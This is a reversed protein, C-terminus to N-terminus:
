DKISAGAGWASNTSSIRAMSPSIVFLLCVTPHCLWCCSTPLFPPSPLTIQPAGHLHIHDVGVVCHEMHPPPLARSRPHALSQAPSQENHLLSVFHCAPSRQPPSALTSRANGITRARQPSTDATATIPLPATTQASPLALCIRHHSRRTNTVNSGWPLDM